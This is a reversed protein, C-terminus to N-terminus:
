RRRRFSVVALLLTVAFFAALRLLPMAIAGLGSGRLFVDIFATYGWNLPSWVALAKMGPPMLAPPVMIGGIAGGIVTFTSGFVAAQDVTRATAGVLIGLGTAALGSAAAAAALAGVNPGLELRPLGFLPFVTLGIALMLGFQCLCVALYLLVKGMLIVAPHVPLTNLRVLTGGDRERVISGGLPIIIMFMAFLSWAPVNQQVSTPWPARAAAFAETFRVPPEMAPPDGTAAPNVAQLIGRVLLTTEIGRGSLELATMVARRQPERIAPDLWVAITPVAAGGPPIGGSLLDRMRERSTEDFRRSTGPEIVVCAQHTGAAALAQGEAPEILRGDRREILAFGETRRLGDRLRVALDGGDRDIWVIEIPAGHLSRLGGEQVLTVIVVLATPMIFLLALAGLDRVLLRAEKLFSHLLRMM